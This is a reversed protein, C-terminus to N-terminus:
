LVFKDISSTHDKTCKWTLIQVEPLYLAVDSTEDCTQCMFSGPVKVKVVPEPPTAGLRTFRSM